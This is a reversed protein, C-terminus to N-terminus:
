GDRQLFATKLVNTVHLSGHTDAHELTVEACRFALQLPRYRPASSRIELHYRGDLHHLKPCPVPGEHDPSKRHLRFPNKRRSQQSAYCDLNPIIRIMGRPDGSVRSVQEVQLEM